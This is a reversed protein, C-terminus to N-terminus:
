DVSVRAAVCSSRGSAAACQKRYIGSHAVDSRTRISDTPYRGRKPVLPEMRFPHLLGSRHDRPVMNSMEAVVTAGALGLLTMGAPQLSCRQSIGVFIGM